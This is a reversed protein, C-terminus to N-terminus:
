ALREWLDNLWGGPRDIVNARSEARLDQLLIKCLDPDQRWRNRWRGGFNEMDEAIDRLLDMFEPETQPLWGDRFEAALRGQKRIKGAKLAKVGQFGSGETPPTGNASAQPQPVPQGETLTEPTLAKEFDKFGLGQVKLPPTVHVTVPPGTSAKQRFRQVRLRTSEREKHERTMRRNRITVHGNRETVDAARTRILETIMHASEAPSCRAFGAFEETTGRLEGVRGLEHMCNLLEFWLGRALPTLLHVAPDSRWARSDWEMPHHQGM